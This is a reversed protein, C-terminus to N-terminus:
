AQKPYLLREFVFCGALFPVLWIVRSQYRESPGSLAGLTFANGAVLTTVLITAYFSRPQKKMGLVILFGILLFSSIVVVV